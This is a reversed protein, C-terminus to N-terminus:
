VTLRSCSTGVSVAAGSVKLTMPPLLASTSALSKISPSLAVAVLTTSVMTLLPPMM